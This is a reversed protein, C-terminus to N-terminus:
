VNINGQGASTVGAYTLGTVSICGTLQVNVALGANAIITGGTNPHNGGRFICNTFVVLAGEEVAVWKAAKSQGTREFTCGRFIVTNNIPTAKAKVVVLPNTSGQFHVGDVVAANSITLQRNCIVGAGIASVSMWESQLNPLGHQGPTINAYDANGGSTELLVGPTTLRLQNVIDVVDARLMQNSVDRATGGIGHVEKQLFTSM